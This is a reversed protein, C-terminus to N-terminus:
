DDCLRPDSFPRSNTIVDDRADSLIAILANVEPITLTWTRRLAPDDGNRWGVGDCFDVCGCLTGSAVFPGSEFRRADYLPAHFQIIDATM